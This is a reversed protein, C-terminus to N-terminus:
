DAYMSDLVQVFTMVQGLDLNLQWTVEGDETVDQIEGASSWVVQTAGDEFRHVDGKAFVYLSPTHGYSWVPTATRADIDLELERAESYGRVDGNEFFLFNGNDLLEFQHCLELGASGDTFTFENLEGNIGWLVSGTARDIKVMSGLNKMGFYYSDDLPSYDLANGHTWNHPDPSEFDSPSWHDWASWVQTSTGDPAIEVITDAAGPTETGEQVVVVALTGDPLETFDHDAGPVVTEVVSSGDLSVRVIKSQDLSGQPGALMYVVSQADATLVGRMLNGEEEVQHWWVYRGWADVIVVAYSSGQIPLVQYGSWSTAEGTVGIPFLGSPLYGTTIALDPSSGGAGSDTVVRFNFETDAYLGLLLVEHDTSLETSPTSLRFPEETSARPEGFEVHGSTPVETQWRVIVVTSVYESLVATINSPTEPGAEIDATDVTDQTDGTEASDPAGDAAGDKAAGAASCGLLSLPLLALLTHHLAASM